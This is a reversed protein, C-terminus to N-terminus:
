CYEEYNLVEDLGYIETQSSYVKILGLPMNTDCYFNIGWESGMHTFGMYYDPPMLNRGFLSFLEAMDPSSYIVIPLDNHKNLEVKVKLITNYLHDFKDKDTSWLGFISLAKWDVQEICIANNYIESKIAKTIWLNRM